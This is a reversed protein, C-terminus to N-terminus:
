KWWRDAGRAKSPDNSDSLTTVVKYDELEVKKALQKCKAVGCPTQIDVEVTPLDRTAEYAMLNAIEQVSQRFDKTGTNGDRIISLKHSMLPHDFVVLKAM